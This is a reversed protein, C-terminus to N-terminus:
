LIRPTIEKKNVFLRVNEECKETSVKECARLVSCVSCQALLDAANLSLGSSGTSSDGYVKVELM